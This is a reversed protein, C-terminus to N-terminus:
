IFEIFLISFAIGIVFLGFVMKLKNDEVKQSFQQGIFIGAVSISTFILLFMWDIELNQIDGVFGILSKLSIIALSTAIAAKMRLDSLIVLIPIIIFGGGAGVLGTLFGILSGEAFILFKNPAITKTQKLGVITKPTRKIMLFGAVLMLIAFLLMILQNKTLYISESSSIITEPILHILYKRTIYVTIVASLSFLLTTSYNILKNRLNKISGILSTTGVIFLSYATATVPNIGFLYVLIPVSLISGGSGILGLILGVTFAGIYGLLEFTEM